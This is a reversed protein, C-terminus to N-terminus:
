SQMENQELIFVMGARNTIPTAGGKSLNNWTAVLFYTLYLSNYTSTLMKTAMNELGDSVGWGKRLFIKEFYNIYISWWYDKRDIFGVLNIM